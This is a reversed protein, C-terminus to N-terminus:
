DSYTNAGSMFDSDSNPQLVLRYGIAGCIAEVNSLSPVSRYNRNKLRSVLDRHVGARIAIATVSEGRSCVDDILEGLQVLFPPNPDQETNM